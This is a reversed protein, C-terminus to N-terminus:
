AAPTADATPFTGCRAAAPNTDALGSACTNDAGTVPVNLTVAAAPTAIALAALNLALRFITKM